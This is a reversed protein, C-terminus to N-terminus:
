LMDATQGVSLRRMRMLLHGCILLTLTISCALLWWVFYELRAVHLSELWSVASEPLIGHFAAYGTCVVLWGTELLLYPVYYWLFSFRGASTEYSLFASTTISLTQRLTYLALLPWCSAYESWLPVLSLIGRGFIAYIATVALGSLFTGGLLKWLLRESEIGKVRAEAVYPFVVTVLSLGVFTAVDALRSIMYFAASDFETLRQRILLMQWAGMLSVVTLNIAVPVAYRLMARMDARGLPVATVGRGLEKRLAFWSVGITTAPAALQGLLYGSLARFPMAVLMVVLRVPASLATVVSLAKFRKLGQLANGFVSSLPTALGACILLIGLSGEPVRLREFFFPFVFRVALAVLVCSGISGYFAMQILRKVKGYEGQTAYITLWRSFPIVLIALPLGITGAMQLLPLAAGLESQPVYRPVLWLGIFAQIADGTRCAIFILLSYWWFDGLRMQLRSLISM